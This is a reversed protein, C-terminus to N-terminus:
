FVGRILENRKWENLSNRVIEEKIEMSELMEDYNNCFVTGAFM